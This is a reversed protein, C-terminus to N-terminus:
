FAGPRLGSPRVTQREPPKKRSESAYALGLDASLVAFFTQLAELGGASAGIGCVPVIESLSEESDIETMELMALFDTRFQNMRKKNAFEEIIEFESGRIANPV